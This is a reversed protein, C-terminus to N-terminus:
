HKMDYPIVFNDYELRYVGNILFTKWRLTMLYARFEEALDYYGFNGDPTLPRVVTVRCDTIYGFSNIKIGNIQFFMKQEDVLEPYHEISLKCKAFAKQRKKPKDLSFGKTAIRNKFLKQQTVLGNEVSLVLEKDYYREFGMHQYYIMQKGLPVRIDRTLWSAVIHGDKYFDHFIRQLDKSAVPKGWITDNIYAYISDLCLQGNLVSWFVVTNDPDSSIFVRDEPFLVDVKAFLTSDDSLPNGMLMRYQGDIYIFDGGVASAM